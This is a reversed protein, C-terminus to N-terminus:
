IPKNDNTHKIQEHLFVVANLAQNQTSPAVQRTVAFHTLHAEVEAAGIQSPHRGAQPHRHFRIFDEAWCAYSM